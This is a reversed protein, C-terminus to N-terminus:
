ARPPSRHRHGPAYRRLINLSGNVDAHITRGTSAVFLGRKVRKGFYREHRGIPENDLFSCKSTHREEITAVQIGVLIAKYTLMAIFRAHPIMVFAQNNRKGMNVEQKWGTNKGIVV